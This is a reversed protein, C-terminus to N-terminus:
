RQQKDEIDKKEIMLKTAYIKSFINLIHNSWTELNERVNWKKRGFTRQSLKYSTCKSHISSM